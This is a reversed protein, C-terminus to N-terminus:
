YKRRLVESLVFAARVSEPQRLWQRVTAGVTGTAPASAPLRSDSGTSARPLGAARRAIPAPTNRSTAVAPAELSVTQVKIREQSQTPRATERPMPRGGLTLRGAPASAPAPVVPAAEGSNRAQMQRLMEQFSATPLDPVVGGPRPPREQSERASTERMKKLMRFVFTGIAFLIWLLTWVKEM